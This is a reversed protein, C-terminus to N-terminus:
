GNGGNKMSSLLRQAQPTSLLNKTKQPDSLVQRLRGIDEASLRSLLRATQPNSEMIRELGDRDVGAADAAKEIIKETNNSFNKQNM